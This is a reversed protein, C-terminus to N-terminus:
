ILSSFKEQVAKTDVEFICPNASIYTKCINNFESIDDELIKMIWSHANPNQCLGLLSSTTVLNSLKESTTVYRSLFKDILSMGAPNRALNCWVVKDLNKELIHIAKPNLALNGWSVKDLNKELIHIANPNESLGYWDVKDLNKELIHIANPNRSLGVWSIKDLNKELIDIAEPNFSISYWDICINGERILDIASPNSNIYPRLLYTNNIVLDVTSINTNLSPIDLEKQNEKQSLLSVAEPSTNSSLMVWDIKDQNELLLRGARSNYSLGSWCLKSRDINDRLKYLSPIVFKLIELKMETPLLNM